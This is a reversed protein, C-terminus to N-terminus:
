PLAPIIMDDHDNKAEVGAKACGTPANDAFFAVAKTVDVIALNLGVRFQRQGVPQQQKIRFKACNDFGEPGVSDRNFFNKHVLVRLRRELKALGAADYQQARGLRPHEDGFIRRPEDLFRHDASALGVFLLDLCHEPYQQRPQFKRPWVRRIRQSDRDGVGMM